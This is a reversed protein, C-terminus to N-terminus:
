EKWESSLDLWKPNMTKILAEKKERRWRKIQKERTIAVTISDSEEFYVLKHCGYRKTFGEVLGQKHQEVRRQLDNTVGTYLTGTDSAMLYIYSHLEQKM